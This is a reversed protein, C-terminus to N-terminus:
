FRFGVTLLYNFGSLDITPAIFANPGTTPLDGKAHQYRIEGGISWGGVPVRVGGLIVPGAASGSQVYPNANADLITSQDDPLIFYGQETYKWAYVGVGAGVYPVIGARQGLPLFRFTATFPVIRLKLDQEIENGSAFTQFAYTTPVTRTYFGIGLSGEFHDGLGVLWEGGITINNFDSMEIGASRDLTALPCPNRAPCGGTTSEAVLVDGAARSDIGRPMFGGLFINFQQQAYASSPLLVALGLVAAFRTTLRRM